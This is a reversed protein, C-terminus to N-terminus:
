HRTLGREVSLCVWPAFAHRSRRDRDGLGGASGGLRCEGDIGVAITTGESLHVRGRVPDIALAM